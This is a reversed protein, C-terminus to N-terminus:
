QNKIRQNIIELVKEAENHAIDVIQEAEKEINSRYETDEVMPLNILVNKYAGWIGTELAKAGVEVDSHSAINGYKAIEQMEKWISNALKMTTLPVEIAKIIGEQM